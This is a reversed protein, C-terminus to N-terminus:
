DGADDSEEDNFEEDEQSNEDEPFEDALRRQNNDGLRRSRRERMARTGGVLNDDSEGYMEANMIGVARIPSEEASFLRQADPAM